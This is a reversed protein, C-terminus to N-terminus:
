PKRWILHDPQDLQEWLEQFAYRILEGNDVRQLIHHETGIANVSHGLSWALANEEARPFIL